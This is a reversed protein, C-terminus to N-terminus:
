QSVEASESAKLSRWRQLADGGINLVAAPDLYHYGQPPRFGKSKKRLAHLCVPAALQWTHAIEIAFAVDSGSYYNAFETKTLGTKDRYKRWIADPSSSVVKAVQFAGLLARTEGSAYVIVLDGAEVRPRVRRLEVTKTGAFIQDAFRPRISLLLADRTMRLM